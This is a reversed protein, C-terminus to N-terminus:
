RVPCTWTGAISVVRTEPRDLWRLLLRSEELGTVDVNELVTEATLMLREITPLVDHTTPATAAAALRGRRIVALDWSEGRRAAATIEAVGTFTRVRQSQVLGKVLQGLRDRLAAADEYRQAASLEDIRRLVVEVVGSPDDHVCNLLRTVHRGYEEVSERHECPAGCRGMEALACAASTRRVSLRGGCQRIPLAEYIADAAALVSGKSRFPGLSRHTDAPPTRVPSLRPYPEQTLALWWAREPNKSRINYPPRHAQIIRLERVEAELTHACTVAEVRQAAAIMVGIRSRTESSVFYNKVRKRVDSSTGVYLPRGDAAYFIYVGPAHPLHDALYRKRRQADTVRRTYATLERLGHVGVDGLRELLGHLVDTTARADDLARHTPATEAHFYAALTGLKCNPTEDRSLVQRALTLTDVVTFKPWALGLKDSAATLFGMDFRANHAVLVSGAAFELFQPLIAGIPPASSVMVNSIGTLVTIFAPIPAEPKVLSAFEGVISGGRVKVAGIETIAGATVSGGTTELDVVVFTVNKLLEAEDLEDFSQQRFEAGMSPERPPKLLDSSNPM